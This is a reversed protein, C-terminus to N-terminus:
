IEADDSMSAKAGGKGIEESDKEKKIDDLIKHYYDYLSKTDSLMKDILEAITKASNEHIPAFTYSHSELFEDREKLKEYFKQLTRESQTTVLEEFRNIAQHYDGFNLDSRQLYDDKVVQKRQDEPIKYLVSAPDKLFAIGWMITSSNRKDRSRDKKYMSQFPEIAKFQPNLEWFNAGLDFKNIVTEAM